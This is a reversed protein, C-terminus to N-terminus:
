AAEDNEPDALIAPLPVKLAAAMRRALDPSASRRGAEIDTITPAGCGVRRAFESKTLGSRERIETLAFRNIRVNPVYPLDQSFELSRLSERYLHRIGASISASAGRIM